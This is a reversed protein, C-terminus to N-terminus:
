ELGSIDTVNMRTPGWPYKVFITIVRDLFPGWIHIQICEMHFKVSLFILYRGPSTSGCM